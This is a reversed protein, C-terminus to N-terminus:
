DKWEGTIMNYNKLEKKFERLNYAGINGSRLKRRLMNAMHNLFRDAQNITAKAEQVAENMEEWKM